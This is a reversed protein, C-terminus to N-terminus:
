TGGTTINLTGAQPKDIRLGRKGKPRAQGARDEGLVPAKAAKDPPPAGIVAALRAAYASTNNARAMSVERLQGLVDNTSRISADLANQKQLIETDQTRKMLDLQQEALRGYAGTDPAYITARGGGGGSCM